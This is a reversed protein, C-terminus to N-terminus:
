KKYLTKYNRFVVLINNKNKFLKINIFSINEELFLSIISIVKDQKPFFDKSIM